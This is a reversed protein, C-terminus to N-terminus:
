DNLQVLPDKRELKALESPIKQNMYEQLDIFGGAVKVKLKNQMNVINVRLSGFLYQGEKERKFNIKLQSRDPYNNIFDALM